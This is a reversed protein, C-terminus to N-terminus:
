LITAIYKTFIKYLIIIYEFNVGLTIMVNLGNFTLLLKWIFIYYPQESVNPIYM